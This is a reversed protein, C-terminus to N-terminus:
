LKAGGAAAIMEDLKAANAEVLGHAGDLGVLIVDGEEGVGAGAARTSADALIVTVEGFFEEGFTEIPGAVEGPEIERLLLPAFIPVGHVEHAIEGFGIMIDNVLLDGGMQAGGGDKLDLVMVVEGPFFDVIADLHDNM